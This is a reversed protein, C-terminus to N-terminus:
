RNYFEKNVLRYVVGNNVRGVRGYRQECNSKSAWQVKLVSFQTDAEM